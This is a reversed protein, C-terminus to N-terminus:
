PDRLDEPKCTVLLRAYWNLRSAGADARQAAPKQLAILEITLPRSEEEKGQKHLVRILRQTSWATFLSEDGLHRLSIELAERALQEAEALKNQLRLSENYYRM